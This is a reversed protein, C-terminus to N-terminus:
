VCVDSHSCRRRVVVNTSLRAAPTGQVKPFQRQLSAASAVLLTFGALMLKLSRPTPSGLKDLALVQGVGSVLAHLPVSLVGVAAVRFVPHVEFLLARLQDLLRALFLAMVRNQEPLAALFRQLALQVLQANPEGVLLWDALLSYSAGLSLALTSALVPVGLIRHRVAPASDHRCKNQYARVRVPRNARALLVCASVM